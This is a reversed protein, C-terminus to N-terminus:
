LLILHKNIENGAFRNFERLVILSGTLICVAARDYDAPGLKKCKSKRKDTRCATELLKSFTIGQGKTSLEDFM